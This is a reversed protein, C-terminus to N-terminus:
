EMVSKPIKDPNNEYYEKYFKQRSTAYPNEYNPKSFIKEFFGQEKPAPAKPEIIKDTNPDVQVVKGTDLKRFFNGKSDIFTGGVPIQTLESPAFGRPDKPQLPIPFVRNGTAKEYNNMVRALGPSMGIAQLEKAKQAIIAEENEAKLKLRALREADVSSIGATTAALNIQRQFADETEGSKLYQEVPEQFSKAITPIIGGGVPRESALRISGRLLTDLLRDRESRGPGAAASFLQKYEEIRPEYESGGQYNKRPQALSIIGDNASGGVRFMPRKLIKSM